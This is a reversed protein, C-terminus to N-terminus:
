GSLYFCLWYRFNLEYFIALVALFINWFSLTAWKKAIECPKNAVLLTLATWFERTTWIATQLLFFGACSSKEASMKIQWKRQFTNTSLLTQIRKNRCKFIEQTRQQFKVGRWTNEPSSKPAMRLRNLITVLASSPGAGGLCSPSSPQLRGWCTSFSKM